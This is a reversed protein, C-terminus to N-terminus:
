ERKLPPLFIEDYVIWFLPKRYKPSGKTNKVTPAIALVKSYFSNTEINFYINQVILFTSIHEPKWNARKVYTETGNDIIDPEFTVITDIPAELLELMTSKTLIKDKQISVIKNKQLHKKSFIKKKLDTNKLDSFSSISAAWVISPDNLPLRTKKENIFCFLPEKEKSSQFVSIDLISNQLQQSQADISWNQTFQYMSEVTPYKPQQHTRKKVIKKYTNTDYVIITDFSVDYFLKSVMKASITSKFNKNKYIDIEELEINKRITKGLLYDINKFQSPNLIKLIISETAGVGNESELHYNWSTMESQALVVRKFFFIILLFMFMKSSNM